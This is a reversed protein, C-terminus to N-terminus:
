KAERYIRALNKLMDVQMLYGASETGWNKRAYVTYEAISRIRAAIDSLSLKRKRIM